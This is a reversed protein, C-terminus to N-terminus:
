IRYILKHLCTTFYNFYYNKRLSNCHKTTITVRYYSSYSLLEGDLERNAKNLEKLLEHRRINAAKLKISTDQYYNYAYRVAAGIVLVVFVLQLVNRHRRFVMESMQRLNIFFSSRLWAKPFASSRMRRCLYLSGSLSPFWITLDTTRQSGSLSTTVDEVVYFLNGFKM